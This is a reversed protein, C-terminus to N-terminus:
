TSSIMEIMHCKELLESCLDIKYKNLLIKALMLKIDDIILKLRIHISISDIRNINVWEISRLINDGQEMTGFYHPKLKAEYINAEVFYLLYKTKVHYLKNTSKYIQSRIINQNIVENTEESVERSITDLITIDVSDTRGGIDEYIPKNMNNLKSQLLIEMKNDIIRYIIVGGARIPENADTLFTPRDM